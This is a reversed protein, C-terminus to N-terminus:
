KKVNILSSGSINDLFFLNETMQVLLCLYNQYITLMFLKINNILKNCIQIKIHNNYFNFIKLLIIIYLSHIDLIRSHM